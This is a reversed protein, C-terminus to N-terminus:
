PGGDKPTPMVFNFQKPPNLMQKYAQLFQWAGGPQSSSFLTRDVGLARDIKVTYMMTTVGKSSVPVVEFFIDRDFAFTGSTFVLSALMLLSVVGLAVYERIAIM